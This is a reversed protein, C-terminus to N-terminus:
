YYNRCSEEERRKLNKFNFSEKGVVKLDLTRADELIAKTVMLYINGFM